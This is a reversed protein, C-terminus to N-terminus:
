GIYKMHRCRCKRSLFPIISILLQHARFERTFHHLLCPTRCNRVSPISEDRQSEEVAVELTRRPTSRLNANVREHNSDYIRDGDAHEPAESSATDRDFHSGADNGLTPDALALTSLILIVLAQVKMTSLFLKHYTYYGRMIIINMQNNQKNEPPMRM